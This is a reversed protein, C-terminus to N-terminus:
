LVQSVRSWTGYQPANHGDPPRATVQSYGAKEKTGANEGSLPGNEGMDDETPSPSAADGLATCLPECPGM